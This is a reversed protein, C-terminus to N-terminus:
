RLCMSMADAFRTTVAPPPATGDNVFLALYFPEAAARVCEISEADDIKDPAYQMLLANTLLDAVCTRYMDVLMDRYEDSTESLQRLVTFIPDIDHREIAFPVICIAKEAVEPSLDSIAALAIAAGMAADVCPAMAVLWAPTPEDSTEHGYVREELVSETVGHEALADRVCAQGATDMQGVVDGWTAASVLSPLGSQNPASLYRLRVWGAQGDSAVVQRWGLCEASTNLVRVIAGEAFVAGPTASVSSDLCVERVTVGDGRTNVIQIVGAAAPARSTAVPDAKSELAAPTANASPTANARIIDALPVSVTSSVAPQRSPSPAPPADAVSEVDDGSCGSLMIGMVAVCVYLLSRANM